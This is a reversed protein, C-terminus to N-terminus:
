WRRGPTLSSQNTQTRSWSLAPCLLVPRWRAVQTGAWDAGRWWVKVKLSFLPSFIALMQNPSILSHSMHSTVLLTPCLLASCNCDGPSCWSILSVAQQGLAAVSKCQTSILWGCLHPSQSCEHQRQAEARHQPSSSVLVSGAHRIRELSDHQLEVEVLYLSLCLSLSLGLRVSKTRNWSSTSGSIFSSSSAPCVIWQSFLMKEGRRVRSTISICFSKMLPLRGTGPAASIMSSTSDRVLSSIQYWTPLVECSGARRRAQRLPQLHQVALVPVGLVVDGEVRVEAESGEVGVPLVLAVGRHLVDLDVVLHGKPPIRRVLLLQPRVVTDLGTLSCLEM